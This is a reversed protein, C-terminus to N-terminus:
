VSMASARYHSLWVAIFATILLTLKQYHCQQSGTVHSLFTKNKLPM